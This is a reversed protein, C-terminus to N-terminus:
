FKNKICWENIKREYESPTLNLGQLYKKYAEYQQSTAM